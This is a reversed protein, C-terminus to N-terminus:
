SSSSRSSTGNDGAPDRRSRETNPATSGSSTRNPAKARTPTRITGTANDSRDDSGSGFVTSM